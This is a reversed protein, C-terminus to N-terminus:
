KVKAIAEERIQELVDKLAEDLLRLKYNFGRSYRALSLLGTPLKLDESVDFTKDILVQEKADVMKIYISLAITFEDKAWLTSVSGLYPLFTIKAPSMIAQFHKVAGSIKYDSAQGGAVISFGANHMEEKLIEEVAVAIEKSFHSDKSSFTLLKGKVGEHEQIPRQDELALIELTGMNPPLTAGKEINYGIIHPGGACGSIVLSLCLILWLCKTRM